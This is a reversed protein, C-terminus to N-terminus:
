KRYKCCGPLKKYAADTATDKETDYGVAAIAKSIAAVNATKADYDLHLVHKKMDWFATKVGKVGLAAKEIKVKCMGCEGDVKLMAHTGKKSQMTQQQMVQTVCRMSPQSAEVTIFCSIIVALSLIFRKM